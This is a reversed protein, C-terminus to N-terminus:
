HYHGGGGQRPAGPAVPGCGAFLQKAHQPKKSKVANSQAMVTKSQTMNFREDVVSGLGRFYSSRTFDGNRYM